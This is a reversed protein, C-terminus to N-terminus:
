TLAANLKSYEDLLYKNLDRELMLRLEDVNKYEIWYQKEEEMKAHILSDASNQGDNLSYVYIKPKGKRKLSNFAVEFEEMTYAGAKGSLIFVSVNVYTDIFHNYQEQHGGLNVDKPFNQYSYSNVNIGLPKWQSQLLNIVGAFIDRELQLSKSGAIFFNVDRRKIDKILNDVDNEYNDMFNKAAEICQTAKNFEMEQYMKFGSKDFSRITVGKPMNEWRPAMEYYFKLSEIPFTCIGELSGYFLANNVFQFAKLRALAFHIGIHNNQNDDLQQKLYIFNDQIEKISQKVCTEACAVEQVTLDHKFLINKDKSDVSFKLDPISGEFSKIERLRFDIEDELSRLQHTEYSGSLSVSSLFKELSITISRNIGCLTDICSITNCYIETIDRCVIVENSSKENKDPKNPDKGGNGRKDIKLYFAFIGVIVITILIVFLLISM